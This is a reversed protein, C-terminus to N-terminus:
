VLQGGQYGPRNLKDCSIEGVLEKFIPFYITRYGEEM